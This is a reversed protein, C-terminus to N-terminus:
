TTGIAGRPQECGWEGADRIGDVSEVDIGSYQIARPHEYSNGPRGVAMKEWHIGHSEIRDHRLRDIVNEECVGKMADRILQAHRSGDRCDEFQFPL